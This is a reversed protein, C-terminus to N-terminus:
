VRHFHGSCERKQSGHPEKRWPPLFIFLFVCWLIGSLREETAQFTLSHRMRRRKYYLHRMGVLTIGVASDRRWRRSCALAPVTLQRRLNIYQDPAAMTPSTATAKALPASAAAWTRVARTWMFGHSISSTVGSPSASEVQSVRVHNRPACPLPMGCAMAQICRCSMVITSLTRARRIARALINKVQRPRSEPADMPRSPGVTCTPAEMICVTPRNAPSVSTVLCRARILAPPAAPTAAAKLVGRAPMTNPISSSAWEKSCRVLPVM